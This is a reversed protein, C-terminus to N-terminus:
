TFVPPASYFKYLGIAALVIVPVAIALLTGRHPAILWLVVGLALAVGIGLVLAGGIRAGAIALVVALAVGLVGAFGIALPRDRKVENAARTGVAVGIAHGLAGALAASAVPMVVYAEIGFEWDCTPQWIGRVAAIVGPVLTVAVALGAAGCISRALARGPYSAREIGATNSWQLERALAAGLDLGAISGFLAAAIALEYGLVGFLPVFGLGIGLVAAVTIWIRIRWRTFMRRIAARTSGAGM